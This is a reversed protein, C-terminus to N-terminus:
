SMTTFLRDGEELQDDGIHPTEETRQEDVEDDPDESILSIVM